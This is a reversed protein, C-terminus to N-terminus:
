YQFSIGRVDACSLKVSLPFVRSTCLFGIKWKKRIMSLKCSLESGLGLMKATDPKIKLIIGVQIRNRQRTSDLNQRLVSFRIYFRGIDFFWLLSSVKKLTNEIISYQCFLIFDTNVTSDPIKPSSLNYEFTPCKDFM